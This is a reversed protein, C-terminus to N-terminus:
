MIQVPLYTPLILLVMGNSCTPTCFGYWKFLYTPLYSTCFGYWKCLYTPLYSSCFWVMQVPLCISLYSSCFWVIQVIDRHGHAAALHLATDDGMNTANIRVGRNILMEVINGRGEMAAWHLLSFRHDDGQNLDNETNDLWIRVQFANGERVLSFIDDM